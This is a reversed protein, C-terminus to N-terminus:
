PRTSSETPKSVLALLSVGFPLDFWRLLVSEIRLLGILCQNMWRPLIIVHSKPEKGRRFPRTLLRFVVIPVFAFAIAYTLREIRLPQTQLLARLSRRTYRRYHHLAEDHESWLFPHAPVAIVARGGPRLIRAIEAYVKADDEIHEILDLALAMDAAADRLPLAGAESRVLDRIRRQRCYSLALKSFDLGVPFSRCRLSDLLLGTGCGVDIAVPVPAGSPSDFAGGRELISLILNKRGQFWWYTDELAYMKEYEEANM